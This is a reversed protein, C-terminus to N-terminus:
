QPRRGSPGSAPGTPSNEYDRRTLKRVYLDVKGKDGRRYARAREGERQGAVAPVLAAILSIPCAKRCANVSMARKSASRRDNGFGGDLNVRGAVTMSVDSDGDNDMDVQPGISGGTVSMADDFGTGEVNLIDNGSGTLM